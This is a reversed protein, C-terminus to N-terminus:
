PGVRKLLLAALAGFQALSIGLAWKILEAKTEEIKGQLRLEMERLDRRIEEIDRTLAAQTQALDQKSTLQSEVLDRVIATQAEVQLQTFGAAELRKVTEHTDFPLPSSMM